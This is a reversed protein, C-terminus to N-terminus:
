FQTKDELDRSVGFTIPYIRLTEKVCHKLYSLKSLHKESITEKGDGLVNDIEEQLKKQKDQNKALMYLTFAVTHSTTDIGAFMMDLVMTVVDKRTLGETKLFTEMLTMEADDESAKKTLLNKETERIIEDAIRLFIDHNKRLKKYSPTAFLKWFPFRIETINMAEVANNACKIMQMQMSDEPLNPELCGLRRNLAVTSVSELSWKYLDNLFHPPMEGLQNQYDAIIEIFDLNIRDMQPLYKLLNKPRLMQGQVKSRVRQWEQHNETILGTKNEFYDVNDERVSKLSVFFHRIPNGMTIRHLEEVDEPKSILITNPRGRNRMQFIKGYERFFSDFVKYFKRRDFDKHMLLALGSGIFPYSKPGPMQSLPLIEKADKEEFSASIAVRSNRKTTVSYSSSHIVRQFACFRKM